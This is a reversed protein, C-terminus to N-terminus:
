TIDNSIRRKFYLYQSVGRVHILFFTRAGVLARVKNQDM